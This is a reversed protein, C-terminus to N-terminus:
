VFDCRGAPLVETCIDRIRERMLPRWRDSARPTFFPNRVNRLRRRRDGDLHLINNEIEERLPGPGVAFLEAILQGPFTASKTRLFFEGADRDLTLYYGTSTRALWSEAALDSMVEHFHDGYLATDVPEFVPLELTSADTVATRSRGPTTSCTGHWGAGCM